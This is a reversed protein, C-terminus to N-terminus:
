GQKCLSERILLNWPNMSSKRAWTVSTKRRKKNKKWANKSWKYMKLFPISLHIWQTHTHLPSLVCQGSPITPSSLPFSFCHHYQHSRPLSTPSGKMKIFSSTRFSHPEQYPWPNYEKTATSNPIFGLGETPQLILASLHDQTYFSLDM